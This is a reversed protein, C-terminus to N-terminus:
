NAESSEEIADYRCGPCIPDRGIYVSGCRPCVHGGNARLAEERRRFRHYLNVFATRMEPDKIDDFLAREAHSLDTEPLKSATRQNRPLDVATIRIGHLPHAQLVHNLKALLEPVLLQLEQAVTANCAMVHLVGDRVCSAEAFASLRGVVSPWLFVAEQKAREEALGCRRLVAEFTEQDM